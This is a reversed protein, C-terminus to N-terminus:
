KSNLYNGLIIKESLYKGVLEHAYSNWHADIDFEFKHKNKAFDDKFLVTLDIFDIRMEKTLSFVMKNLPNLDPNNQYIREMSADMIFLLKFNNILALSQMERFIHHTLPKLEHDIYDKDLLRADVNDEFSAGHTSTQFLTNLQLNVYIFRIISSKSLVRKMKSLTDQPKRPIFENNIKEFQLFYPQDQNKVLSEDFDNHILSVIILDPSYRIADRMVSLYQSLPSSYFGMGFVEIPLFHDLENGMVSVFSKDVDVQLADVYSDGIVIIRPTNKETVYAKHISNWGQENIRYKAAIESGKRYIGEQNPGSHVGVNEYFNTLPIDSAPLVFSFVLELFVILLLITPITLTTFSKIFSM